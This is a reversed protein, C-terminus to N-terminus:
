AITQDEEPIIPGFECIKRNAPFQARSLPESSGGDVAMCDLNDNLLLGYEIKHGLEPSNGRLDEVLSNRESSHDRRGHGRKESGASLLPVKLVVM